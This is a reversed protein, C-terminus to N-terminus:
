AAVADLIRDLSGDATLCTQFQAVVDPQSLSLAQTNRPLDRRSVIRLSRSAGNRDYWTILSGVGMRLLPSFVGPSHGVFYTRDIFCSDVDAQHPDIPRKGSCDAYVGVKVNLTGDASVLRDHPGAPLRLPIPLTSPTTVRRSDAVPPPEAARISSLPQQVLDQRPQLADGGTAPGHSAWAPASFISFILVLLCAVLSRRM